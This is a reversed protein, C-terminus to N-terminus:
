TKGATTPRALKRSLWLAFPVLAGAVGLLLAVINLGQLFDNMRRLRTTIPEGNLIARGTASFEAEVSVQDGEMQIPLSSGMSDRRFQVLDFLALQANRMPWSNAGIMLTGSANDMGLAQLVGFANFGDGLPAPPSTMTWIMPGTTSNGQEDTTTMMQGTTVDIPNAAIRASLQRYRLLDGATKIFSLRVEGGLTRPGLAEPEGEGILPEIVTRLAYPAEIRVLMHHQSGDEERDLTSAWIVPGIFDVAPYGGNMTSGDDATERTPRPDAPYTESITYGTENHNRATPQSSLRVRSNRLPIWAGIPLDGTTRLTLPGTTVLTYQGPTKTESQVVRGGAVRPPGTRAVEVDLPAGAPLIVDYETVRLRFLNPHFSFPGPEAASMRYAVGPSDAPHSAEIEFRDTLFTIGRWSEADDRACGCAPSFLQTPGTGYVIETSGAKSIALRLPLDSPSSIFWAVTLYLFCGLSGVLLIATWSVPPRDM